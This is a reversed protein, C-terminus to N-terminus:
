KRIRESSNQQRMRREEEFIYRIIEERVRDNKISFKARSMFKYEAAAEIKSTEIVNAVIYYQNDMTQSKLQLEVLIWTGQKQEQGTSFRIGGGSLDMIKGKQEKEYFNEDRIEAFIEEVSDLMAQEETLQYFKFDMLCPYRFFERRQFKEPQSKLEMELMYINDKKYREKVQGVARYLSDKTFFVLEYRVGLQLLALKGAEMPMAIEINGNSRFDLVQSKYTKVSGDTKEAQEVEQLVRIDIKNGIRIVDSVKM